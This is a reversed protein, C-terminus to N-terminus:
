REAGKQTEEEELWFLSEISVDLVRAIELALRVSPEHKGREIAIVTQRTVRVARALTEQTLGSQRRRERLCNCLKM